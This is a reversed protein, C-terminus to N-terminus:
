VAFSTLLPLTQQKPFGKERFAGPRASFFSQDDPVFFLTDDLRHPSSRTFHDDVRPV